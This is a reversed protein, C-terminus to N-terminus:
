VGLLAVRVERKKYYAARLKTCAVVGISKVTYNSQAKSMTQYFPTVASAWILDEQKTKKKNAPITIIKFGNPDKYIEKEEDL